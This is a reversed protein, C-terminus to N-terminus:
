VAATATTFPGKGPNGFATILIVFAELEQAHIFAPRIRSPAPRRAILFQKGFATEVADPIDGAPNLCDSNHDGSVNM